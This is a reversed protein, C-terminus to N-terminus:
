YKKNDAELNDKIKCLIRKKKQNVAQRSVGLQEAIERASYGDKFILYIIKCECKSLYEEINLEEFIDYKDNSSHKCEVNYKQEDTLECMLLENRKKIYKKLLFIYHNQISKNLYAIIVYDNKSKLNNLNMDKISKIFFLVLDQYTDEYDLKRSYKTILPNFQNVLQITSYENGKQANSILEFLMDIM